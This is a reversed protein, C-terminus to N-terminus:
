AQDYRKKNKIILIGLGVFLGIGAGAIINLNQRFLVAKTPLDPQKTIEVSVKSLEISESSSLYNQNIMSADLTQQIQNITEPSCAASAPDVVIAQSLCDEISLLLANFHLSDISNKRMASLKDMATDLWIQNIEQALFPDSDRVSLEWRYGQRSKTLIGRVVEPSLLIKQDSVSKVVADKVETSSILDGITTILQDQEVDDIKGAYAFDISTTIASTSEYIPKHLRTVLVGILGGAIMLGALLWWFRASLKVLDFPVFDDNM